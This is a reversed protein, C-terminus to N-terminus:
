DISKFVFEPENDSTNSETQERRIRRIKAACQEGLESEAGAKRNRLALIESKTLHIIVMRPIHKPLRYRAM